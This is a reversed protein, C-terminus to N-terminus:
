VVNENNPLPIDGSALEFGLEFDAWSERSLMLVYDREGGEFLWAGLVAAQDGEAQERSGLYIELVSSTGGWYELNVNRSGRVFRSSLFEEGADEPSLFQVGILVNGRVLHNFETLSQRCRQYTSGRFTFSRPTSPITTAKVMEESHYLVFYGSSM